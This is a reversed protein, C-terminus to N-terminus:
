KLNPLIIRESFGTLFGFTFGVAGVPSFTMQELMGNNILEVKLLGSYAIVFLITAGLAGVFPKTLVYWKLYADDGPLSKSTQFRMVASFFGGLLGAFFIFLLPNCMMLNFVHRFINRFVLGPLKWLDFKLIEEATYIKLMEAPKDMYEPPPMLILNDIYLLFFSLPLLIIFVSLYMKKKQLQEHVRKIRIDNLRTIVSAISRISRINKKEDDPEKYNDLELAASDLYAKIEPDDQVNLKSAEIRCFDLHHQLKENPIIFDTLLRTRIFTMDRWLLNLHNEYRTIYERDKLLINYYSLLRILKDATEKLCKIKKRDGSNKKSNNGTEITILHNKIINKRYEIYDDASEEDRKIEFNKIEIKSVFNCINIELERRLIWYRERAEQAHISSVKGLWSNKRLVSYSKMIHGRQKIHIKKNITTVVFLILVYLSFNNFCSERCISIEFLTGYTDNNKCKKVIM